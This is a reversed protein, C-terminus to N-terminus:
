GEKGLLSLKSLYRDKEMENEFANADYEAEAENEGIHETHGNKSKRGYLRKKADIVVCIEMFQMRAVRNQLNGVRM